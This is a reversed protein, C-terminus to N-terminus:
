AQTCTSPTVNELNYIGEGGSPGFMDRTERVAMAATQSITRNTMNSFGTVILPRYYYQTEVFMISGGPPPIVERGAPGIGVTNAPSAATGFNSVYFTALGGCRQWRIRYERNGPIPAATEEVSSIIIRANGRTSNSGQAQGPVSHTGGLAISRGARMAGAFVDNIQTESITRSAEATATGMRTANDATNITIKSLHSIVLTYNALEIGGVALGLFFPLSMALEVMALGSEDRKLRRFSEPWTQQLAGRLKKPTFPRSASPRFKSAFGDMM